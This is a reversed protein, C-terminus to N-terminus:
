STEVQYRHTLAFFFEPEPSMITSELENKFCNPISIRKTKSKTLHIKRSSM